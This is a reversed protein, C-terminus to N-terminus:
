GIGPSFGTIQLVKVDGYGEPSMKGKDHKGHHFRWGEFGLNQFHTWNKRYKVQLYALVSDTFLGTSFTV